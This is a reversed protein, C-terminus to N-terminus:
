PRRATMLFVPYVRDAKPIQLATTFEVAEFGAAEAQGRLWDRAFGQHYVGQVDPPHFSGDEQDLDALAIRGGPELLEHFRELLRGTERVHHLAMASIILDFRQGLPETVIDQCVPEVRGRLEPKAALRELMAPSIDVAWVRQVMPAVQACILGTGAGFDMVRLGPDLRVRRLLEAGIGRSILQSLERADWERAKHEFHDNKM